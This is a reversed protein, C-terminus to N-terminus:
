SGSSGFGNDGRDSVTFSKVKNLTFDNLLSVIVLQALRDNLKIVKPENLTNVTLKISGTYGSDIVGTHLLLGNVNSSSRPLVLGVCGIPIDVHLGTDILYTKNPEITLVKESGHGVFKYVYLDMGADHRHAKTPAKAGEDLYYDM